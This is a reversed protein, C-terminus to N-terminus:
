QALVAIPLDNLYLYEKLTTGSPRAEAILHGSLNYTYLTDGATSTKRSRRGLADVQYDTTSTDQARVLRGRPDYTFQVGAASATLSGNADFVQLGGNISTLRNSAPDIGYNVVSGATQTLRNGTADYDYGRTLTPTLSSVLRGLPDYDYQNVQNTVSDTLTKLQSAADYSLTMTRSGLTYDQLRGDLDQHRVFAQGNGYTFSAVGGFPQYQVNTLVAQATIQGPATTDIRQIRGLTDFAYTVTRCSPYTVKDLRGAADYHYGVTATTSGVTRTEQTVRGHADYSYTTQATQTGQANLEALSSLRGLGNPGQDYTHAESSGNHYTILIVRNLADYAYTTVQQKADTRTKLNGAEDVTSTTTGADPSTEQTRNGLGDLTYTTNHGRADTVQTLNDQGDYSYQTVGNSPDTMQKLRNLADYSNTTVHNLADTTTLREGNPTYTYSTTEGPLAGLDQSLRNLSDYVRSRMQKLAGQPDKVDEKTHNGMLDLTYHITNGLGDQVDTLRHAADYTYNIVSSDPLTVQTLQGVGDYTYTTVEGGVNRSILRGRPDYTLQTTLGNPDVITKPRGHADYGPIQTTQNLAHTVSALDGVRYNGNADNTTYYAYTTKDLVDTRPGDATLAQGMSNYTYTWTRASGTVTPTLGQSGNSDTTAQETKSCLAGKAGCTSGDNDYTWTTLHKPETRKTPLRFNPHWATSITRTEPTTAGTSTLGETRQTELNRTLDYSYNTRNGDFDTRSAVNGNADYTTAQATTGGCTPCPQTVGANKVVGLITQFSYTRDANPILPDARFDSVTTSGNANYALTVKGAADAHESSIARGSADYKWTAFRQGLEDIIGTLASPLSAGSTNASENYVYTRTEGDPYIVATITNDVTYSYQYIGGAPDALTHLHGQVDYTLNLQRGYSDTVRILLGPTPAIASSTAVDSYTLTQTLGARDSISQLKGTADYSETQDNSASRYSWGTRVGNADKIETLKDAIDSEPMWSSGNLTFTIGKGDRRVARIYGLALTNLVIKRDYNHNWTMKQTQFVSNYHREFVLPFGGRGIYDAEVQYKNGLAVHIPNGIGLDCPGGANKYPDQGQTNCVRLDSFYDAGVPCYGHYDFVFLNAACGCDQYRVIPFPPPDAGVSNFLGVYGSRPTCFARCASEQDPFEFLPAAGVSHTFTADVHRAQVPQLGLLCFM